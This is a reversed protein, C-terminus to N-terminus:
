RLRRRASSARAPRRARRRAKSARPRSPSRFNQVQPGGASREDDTAPMFDTMTMTTRISAVASRGDAVMARLIGARGQGPGRRQGPSRGNGGFEVREAARRWGSPASPDDNSATTVGAAVQPAPPSRLRPRCGGIPSRASRWSAKTTRTRTQRVGSRGARAGRPRAAADMPPSATRARFCGRAM